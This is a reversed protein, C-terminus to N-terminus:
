SVGKTAEREAKAHAQYAERYMKRATVMARLIVAMRQGQARRLDNIQSLAEQANGLEETLREVEASAQAKATAAASLRVAKNERKPKLTKFLDSM